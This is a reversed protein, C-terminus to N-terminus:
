KDSEWPWVADAGKEITEILGFGKDSLGGFTIKGPGDITCSASYGSIDWVFKTVNDPINKFVDVAGRWSYPDNQAEDTILIIRDHDNYTKEVAGAIDTGGRPGPLANAVTLLDKSKGTFKVVGTDFSYLEANKARLYVAAGFMNAAYSRNLTGRDSLPSCMSGSHDVLVLTKGGLSPVNDLVGRAGRELAGSFALPTNRFASLFEIPMTKAKRANEPDSIVKVIKAETEMSIGSEAIRRLNMRLAMYGMDDVLTDWVEAPITGIHGAIVEHTLAASKILDKAKSGTLAKIAEDRSLALFERRAKIVPLSSDDAKNDYADDIIYQGFAGLDPHTLNVVDRLNLNGKDMRGSWKLYTYQSLKNDLADNIGRKVASPVKRGYESMWYSLLDSSEDLRGISASIIQRNGGFEKRDLRAKVAHVAIIAPVSRLGAEQRLWRVLGETWEQDKSVKTVLAKIRDRRDQASEYYTDENLFTVAALFLESKPDKKFALFGEGNLTTKPAGSKKKTATKVPGTGKRTTATKTNLRAM